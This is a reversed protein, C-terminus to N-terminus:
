FFVKIKIKQSVYRKKERQINYICKEMNHGTDMNPGIDTQPGIDLQGYQTRNWNQARHGYQIRQSNKIM